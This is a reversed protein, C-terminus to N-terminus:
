HKISKIYICGEVWKGKCIKSKLKKDVKANYEILTKLLIIDKALIAKDIPRYGNKDKIDVDAGNKLLVRVINNDGIIFLEDLEFKNDDTIDSFIGELSPKLGNDLLLQLTTANGNEIALRLMSDGELEIKADYNLLLKVIKLHEIGISLATDGHNDTTNINAGNDLASLVGEVDGLRASNLLDDEVTKRLVVEVYPAIGKGCAVKEGKTFQANISKIYHSNALPSDIDDSMNIRNIQIYLADDKLYATMGGRDDESYCMYASSNDEKDCSFDINEKANPTDRNAFWIYISHNDKSDYNLENAEAMIDQPKKLSQKFNSKDFKFCEKPTEKQHVCLAKRRKDADEVGDDESSWFALEDIQLSLEKDNPLQWDSLGYLTLMECYSSADELSLKQEPIQSSFILYDLNIKNQASLSTILLSIAIIFKNIYM